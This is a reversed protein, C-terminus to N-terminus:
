LDIPTSMSQGGSTSEANRRGREVSRGIRGQRRMRMSYADGGDTLVRFSIVLARVPRVPATSARLTEDVSEGYGNIKM